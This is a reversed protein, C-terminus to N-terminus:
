GGEGTASANRRSGAQQRERDVAAEHERLIHACRRCYAVRGVTALGERAIRGAAIPRDIRAEFPLREVRRSVLPAEGLSAGVREYAYATGTVAKPEVPVSVVCLNPVARAGSM